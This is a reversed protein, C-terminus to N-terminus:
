HIKKDQFSYTLSGSVAMIITFADKRDISHQHEELHMWDTKFYDHHKLTEVENTKRPYDLKFDQTNKYELVDKSEEIHLQRLEGNDDKRNYDYVRYTVDSTQQIEALM